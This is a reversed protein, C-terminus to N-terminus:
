HAKELNIMWNIGFKDTFMAFKEAWFTEQLPMKVIGGESLSVFFKEAEGANECTLSISFNDGQRCQMGPMTDSAMILTMGGKFMRAHMVRDKAEPPTPMNSEGFTTMQLEGELCKQYFSMAEKCSGDFTLYTNVDKM